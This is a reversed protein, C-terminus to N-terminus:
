HSHSPTESLYGEWSDARPATGVESHRLQIFRLMVRQLENGSPPPPALHSYHHRFTWVAVSSRWANAFDAPRTTAKGILYTRAQELSLYEPHVPLDGPPTPPQVPPTPPQQVPQGTYRPNQNWTIMGRAKLFHSSEISSYPIASVMAIHFTGTVVAASLVLSTSFLMM